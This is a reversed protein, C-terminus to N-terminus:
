DGRRRKLLDRVNKGSAIAQKFIENMDQYPLGEKGEAQPTYTGRVEAYDGNGTNEPNNM